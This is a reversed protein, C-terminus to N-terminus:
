KMCLLKIFKLLRVPYRAPFGLYDKSFISLRPSVSWQRFTSGQDCPSFFTCDSRPEFLISKTVIPSIIHWAALYSLRYLVLGILSLDWTRVGTQSCIKRVRHCDHQIELKFQHLFVDPAGKPMIETCLLRRLLVVVM